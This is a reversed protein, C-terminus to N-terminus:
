RSSNKIAEKAAIILPTLSSLPKALKLFPHQGFSFFFWFAVMVKWVCNSVHEVLIVTKVLFLVSPVMQVEVKMGLVNTDCAFVAWVGILGNKCTDEAPQSKQGTLVRPISSAAGLKTGKLFSWLSM